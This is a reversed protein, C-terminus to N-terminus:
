AGNPNTRMCSWADHTVVGTSSIGSSRYMGVKLVGESQAVGNSRWSPYLTRGPLTGAFVVRGNRWITALSLRVESSFMVRIRWDNWVGTVLAGLSVSWPGEQFGPEGGTLCFDTGVAIGSQGGADTTGASLAFPPSFSSFTGNLDNHRWQAIIQFGSQNVPFGADLLTSFNFEWEEGEMFYMGTRLETRVQGSTLTFTAAYRGQRVHTPDVQADVMVPASGGSLDTGGTYQSTDGTEFDGLWGTSFCQGNSRAGLDTIALHKNVFGVM